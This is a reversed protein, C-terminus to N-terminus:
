DKQEKLHLLFEDWMENVDATVFYSNDALGYEITASGTDYSVKTIEAEADSADLTVHEGWDVYDLATEIEKATWRDQEYDEDTSELAKMVDKVIDTSYVDFAIDGTFKVSLDSYTGNDECDVEYEETVEVEVFEEDAFASETVVSTFADNIDDISYTQDHVGLGELDKKLDKVSENIIDKFTKVGSKKHEEFTKM